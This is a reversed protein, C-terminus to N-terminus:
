LQVVHTFCDPFHEAIDQPETAFLGFLTSGSGSMLAFDAGLAYLEDKIERLRPHEKFVPTEFDNTLRDRWETVPLKIVDLCNETPYQPHIQGYARGTAVAIDPKVLAIYYGKLPIDTTAIPTLIEGIGTAYSPEGTIFFACDAGLRAAYAQMEEASMGLHFTENLLTIMAAADSSGGGLGAQSPIYKILHTHLRPLPYDERLMNYAKVVLNSQEPCLDAAQMKGDEVVKTYLDCNVDSPYDADMEHISLADCLPIPYFVTEIDHYGDPRRNVVNLGLNIKCCPYTTM